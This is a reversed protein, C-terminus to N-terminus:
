GMGEGRRLAARPGCNLGPKVSGLTEEACLNGDGAEGQVRFAPGGAEAEVETGEGSNGWCSISWSWRETGAETGSKIM